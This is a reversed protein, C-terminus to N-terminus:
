FIVETADIEIYKTLDDGCTPCGGWSRSVEPSAYITATGLLSSLKFLAEANFGDNVTFTVTKAKKNEHYGSVDYFLEKIDDEFKYKIM